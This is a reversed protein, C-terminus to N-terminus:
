YCITIYRSFKDRKQVFCKEIITFGSSTILESMDDMSIIIAKRAIKKTKEIILSQESLSTKSFKGYPLDVIAVDYTDTIDCINKKKVDDKFGFFKLNENCKNVVVPNLDFGKINVGMYRGEIIVTGIGCCPDVLNLNFNNSIAINILTKAIVIDLAYSYNFPKQKREIWTSDNKIYHGFIWQNNIKTLALKIKPNHLAFNGEIAFGITRLAKLSDEYKVKDDTKIFRIKYDEYFLQDKKVARELAELSNELYLIVICGKIFVSRSPDIYNSTTFYKNKPIFGFISKMEIDCLDKLNDSYNLFYQYKIINDYNNTKNSSRM